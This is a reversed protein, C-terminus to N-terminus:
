RANAGPAPAGFSLGGMDVAGGVLMVATITEGTLMASAPLTALPFIQVRGRSAACPAGRYWGPDGRFPM